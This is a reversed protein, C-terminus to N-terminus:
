EDRGFAQDRARRLIRIIDNIADRNLTAHMGTMMSLVGDREGEPLPKLYELFSEHVFPSHDAVHVCKTAIQVHSAEKSWSVEIVIIAEPKDPTGYAPADRDAYITEKPM